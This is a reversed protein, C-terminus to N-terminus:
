LEHVSVELPNGNSNAPQYVTVGGSKKSHPKGRKAQGVWEDSRRGVYCFMALQSSLGACKGSCPDGRETQNIWENSREDVFHLL